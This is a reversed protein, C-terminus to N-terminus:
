QSVALVPRFGTCIFWNDPYDAYRRASRCGYGYDIWSGGRLVKKTGAAPGTPDVACGGAYPGYYDQCWEYLDGHMDYLGWPNPLKGAVPRTQGNSDAGYWAYAALQTYTPDDGYSFATSTGARCAYEWEAETPLRFACGAPIAGAARELETLRACYNLADLWSVDDVPRNPNDAFFSPNNGTVASYEAQTVLHRSILFGRTLTVTTQPGEDANRDTETPPSGMQFVGPTLLTFDLNSFATYAGVRYFRQGTASRVSDTCVMSSGSCQQLALTQWASGPALSDTCELAYVAGTQGRVTLRAGAASLQLRPSSWPTQAALPVGATALVVAVGCIAYGRQQALKGTQRIAPKRVQPAHSVRSVSGVPFGAFDRTPIQLFGASRPCRQWAEALSHSIHALLGLVRPLPSRDTKM